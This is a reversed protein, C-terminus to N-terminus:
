TSSLLPSARAASSCDAPACCIAPRQSARSGSRTAMCRCPCASRLSPSSSRPMSRMSSTHAAATPPSSPGLIGSQDVAPGHGRAPIETVVLALRLKGIRRRAPALVVPNGCERSDAAKMAGLDEPDFPCQIQGLCFRRCGGLIHGGEAQALRAVGQVLHSCDPEASTVEGSRVLREGARMFEAGARFWAPGQEQEGPAVARGRCGGDGPGQGAIGAIHRHPCQQKGGLYLDRERDRVQPQSGIRAPFEVREPDLDAAGADRGFRRSGAPRHQQRPLLRTRGAARQHRRQVTSARRRAM